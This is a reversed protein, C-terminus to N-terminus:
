DFREPFCVWEGLDGDWHRFQQTDQDWAWYDDEMDSDESFEIEPPTLPQGQMYAEEIDPSVARKPEDEFTIALCRIKEELDEVRFAKAGQGISKHVYKSKEPSPETVDDKVSSEEDRTGNHGSFTHTSCNWTKKPRYNPVM